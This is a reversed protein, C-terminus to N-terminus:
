DSAPVRCGVNPPPCIPKGALFVSTTGASPAEYGGKAFTIANVKQVAELIVFPVRRLSDPISKDKTFAGLYFYITDVQPDSVLSGLDKMNFFSWANTLHGKGLIKFKHKKFEHIYAIATDPGIFNSMNKYKNVFSNQYYDNGYKGSIKISNNCSIFYIAISAILFCVKKM